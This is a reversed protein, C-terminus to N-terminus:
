IRQFIKQVFAIIRRSYEDGAIASVNNHDAGPVIFLEKPEPALEFLKESMYPPILRDDTGHIFFVPMKLQSVKSISDFRQHLLLNIPWLKYKAMTNVQEVMSTFSSQVILAAFQPHRMALEIAIAGGLSHGYVLINKPNIRRKDILYNFFIDVDEYIQAESPFDGTSRGYGRYDLSVVDFGMQHYRHIEDIKAGMNYSNGHLYFLVLDSSKLSNSSRAFSPAPIWWGHITEIQNKASVQLWIDEYPLNFIDPTNELTLSPLFILKRQKLLLFISVALYAIAIIVGAIVLFQLLSLFLTM